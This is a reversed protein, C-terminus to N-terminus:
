RATASKKVRNVARTLLRDQLWTPLLRLLGLQTAASRPFAHFLQREDIAKLIERSAQEVPM